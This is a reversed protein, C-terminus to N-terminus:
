GHVFFVNNPGPWGSLPKTNLSLSLGHFKGENCKIEFSIGEVETKFTGAVISEVTHLDPTPPGMRMRVIHVLFSYPLNKGQLVPVLKLDGHQDGRLEINGSAQSGQILDLSLLGHLAHFPVKIQRLGQPTWTDKGHCVMRTVTLVRVKDPSGKDLTDPFQKDM